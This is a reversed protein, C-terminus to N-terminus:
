LQKVGGRRTLAGTNFKATGQVFEFCYKAISQLMTKELKVDTAFDNVTSLSSERQLSSFAVLERYRLLFEYGPSRLSSGLYAAILSSAVSAIGARLSPLSSGARNTGRTM